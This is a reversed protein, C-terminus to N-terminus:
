RRRVVWVGLGAGVVVLFMLGLPLFKIRTAAVEPM